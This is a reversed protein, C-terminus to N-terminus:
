FGELFYFAIHRNCILANKHGLGGLLGGSLRRTVENRLAESAPRTLRVDLPHIGAAAQAAERQVQAIEPGDATTDAAMLALLEQTQATDLHSLAADILAQQEQLLARLECKRAILQFVDRPGPRGAKRGQYPIKGIENM